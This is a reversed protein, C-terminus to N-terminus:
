KLPEKLLFVNLWLDGSREERQDETKWMKITKLGYQECALANFKEEDFDNLYREHREGEFHGYKFSAYLLGKPKLAHSLNKLTVPFETTPVHLLSACAWIGDFVEEFAMEQFTLQHVKQDLLHSSLFVMKKSADMAEVEYGRNKFAYADRGSGCGADLIKAKEPLEHLFVDYLNDMMINVTNIYFIEGYQDYFGNM